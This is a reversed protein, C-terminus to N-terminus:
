EIIREIKTINGSFNEYYHISGKHAIEANLVDEDVIFEIINIDGNELQVYQNTANTHIDAKYDAAIVAITTDDELTILFKDGLENIYFSGMAVCYYGDICRLGQCDTYAIQQLEWQKTTVDTITRYDMYAKFTSDKNPVNMEQTKIRRIVPQEVILQVANIHEASSYPQETIENYREIPLQKYTSEECQRRAISNNILFLGIVTILIFLVIKAVNNKM